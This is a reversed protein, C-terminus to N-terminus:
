LSEEQLAPLLLLPPQLLQHDYKLDSYELTSWVSAGDRCRPRAQPWTGRRYGWRGPLAASLTREALQLALIQPRLM